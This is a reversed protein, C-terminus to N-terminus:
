RSMERSRRRRPAPRPPQVAGREELLEDRRYTHLQSMRARFFDSRGKEGLKIGEARSEPTGIKWREAIESESLPDGSRADMQRYIEYGARMGSTTNTKDRESPRPRDMAEIAILHRSVIDKSTCADLASGVRRLAMDREQRNIRHPEDANPTVLMARKTEHALRAGGRVAAQSMIYAVRLAEDDPDFSM